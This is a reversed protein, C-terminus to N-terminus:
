ASAVETTPRSFRARLTHWLRRLLGVPAGPQTTALAILFAMPLGVTLPHSPDDFYILPSIYDNFSRGNNIAELVPSLSNFCYIPLFTGIITIVFETLPKIKTYIPFMFGFSMGIGGLFAAWTIGFPLRLFFWQFVMWALVGFAFVAFTRLPTRLRQPIISILTRPLGYSAVAVAGLFLGFIEGAAVGLALSDPTIISESRFVSLVFYVMGGAGGAFGWAFRAILQRAHYQEQSTFIYARQLDILKPHDFLDNMELLGDGYLLYGNSRGKSEWERAMVLLKTLRREEVINTDMTATLKAFSEEYSIQVNFFIWNLTRIVKPVKYSSTDATEQNMERCVIPILRKNNRIVHGVELSCIQSQISDPSIVFIAIPSAEIGKVIEEWWDTAFPIDDFDVWVNRGQAQLSEVLQRVFATDKRSYSIFIDTM